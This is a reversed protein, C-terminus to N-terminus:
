YYVKSEWSDPFGPHKMQAKVQITIGGCFARGSSSSFTGQRTDHWPSVGLTHQSHCEKHPFLNREKHFM